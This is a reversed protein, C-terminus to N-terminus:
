VPHVPDVPHPLAKGARSLRLCKLACPPTTSQHPRPQERKQQPQAPCPGPRPGTPRIAFAGRGQAHFRRGAPRGRSRAARRTARTPGSRPPCVPFELSPASPSRVRGQDWSAAVIQTPTPIPAPQPPHVQLGLGEGATGCPTTQNERSTSTGPHHCPSRTASDKSDTEPSVRTHTSPRAAPRQGASGFAGSRSRVSTRTGPRWRSTSRTSFRRSEIAAPSVSPATFGPRPGHSRLDQPAHFEPSDSPAPEVRNTDKAPVRVTPKPQLYGDLVKESAHAGRPQSHLHLAGRLRPSAARQDMAALHNEAIAPGLHRHLHRDRLRGSGARSGDPNPRKLRDREPATSSRPTWCSAVTAKRTGCESNPFPGGGGSGIGARPSSPFFPGHINGRHGLRGGAPTRTTWRKSSKARHSSSDPRRTSRSASGFRDVRAIAASPSRYWGSCGAKWPM